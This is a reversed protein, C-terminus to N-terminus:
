RARELSALLDRIENEVSEADSVTGAIEARLARAFRRKVTVLLNSVQAADSLDYRAVLESATAPPEGTLMPRGVRAEFVSWHVELGDARCESAVRDLVRRVITVAWHYDFAEEPTGFTVVPSSVSAAAPSDSEAAVRRRRRVDSRQKERLYNRLCAVLYTRFRGRSPDAREALRRELLVTTIFGQTLDGAEHVDRGTRRIFAYIAHWYRRVLSDLAADREEGSRNVDHIM